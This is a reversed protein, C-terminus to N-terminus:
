LSFKVFFMKNWVNEEYTGIIIKDRLLNFGLDFGFKDKFMFEMGTGGYFGLGFNTQPANIGQQTPQGPIFNINLDYERQGLRVYNEKWKTGTLSGGFEMYFNAGTNIEWGNRYGLNIVIRDEAGIIDFLRIDQQQNVQLTTGTFIMSFKDVTKLRAFNIDFVISSFLNFNYKLHLGLMISPNYRMNTPYADLPFFYDGGNADQDNLIENVVQPQFLDGKGLRDEITYCQAVNDLLPHTCTGNYVNAPKRSSVYAGITMGYTFGRKEDDWEEEDEESLNLKVEHTNYAKPKQSLGNLPMLLTAFLIGFANIRLCIQATNM